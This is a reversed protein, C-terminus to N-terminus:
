SVCKSNKVQDKARDRPQCNWPTPGMSPDVPENVGEEVQKWLECEVMDRLHFPVPRQGQRVPKILEDIDLLIKVGRACGLKGSFLTHFQTLMDEKNLEKHEENPVDEHSSKASADGSTSIESLM